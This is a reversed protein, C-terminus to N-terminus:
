RSRDSSQESLDSPREVLENRTDHSARLQFEGQAIALFIPLNRTCATIARLHFCILRPLVRVRCPTDPTV